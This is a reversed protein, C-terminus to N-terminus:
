LAMEVNGQRARQVFKLRKKKYELMEKEKMEERTMENEEIEARRTNAVETLIDDSESEMIIKGTIIKTKEVGKKNKRKFVFQIRAGIKIDSDDTLLINEKKIIYFEGDEVFSDILFKREQDNM